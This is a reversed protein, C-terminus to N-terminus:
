YLNWWHWNKFPLKNNRSFDYGKPTIAIKPFKKKFSQSIKNIYDESIYLAWSSTVRPNKKCLFCDIIENEDIIVLLLPGM